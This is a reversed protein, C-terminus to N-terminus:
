DKRRRTMEDMNLKIQRRIEGGDKDWSRQRGACKGTIESIWWLWCDSVQLFVVKHSGKDSDSKIERGNRSHKHEMWHFKQGSADSTPWNWNQRSGAQQAAVYFPSQVCPNLFHQVLWYKIQWCCGVLLLLPSRGALWKWAHTMRPSPSLSFLWIVIYWDIDIYIPDMVTLMWKFGKNEVTSIPQM